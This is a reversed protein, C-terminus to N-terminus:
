RGRACVIFLCSERLLIGVRGSAFGHCVDGFVAGWFMDWFRSFILVGWGRGKSYVTESHIRIEIFGGFGNM